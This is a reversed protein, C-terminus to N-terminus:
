EQARSSRLRKAILGLERINDVLIIARAVTLKDSLLDEFAEKLDRTTQAADVLAQASLNATNIEARLAIWKSPDSIPQSSVYDPRVTRNEKYNNISALDARIQQSLLKQALEQTVLEKYIAEKRAMLESRLVGKIKASLMLKPIASYAAGANASLAPITGIQNGIDTLQTFIRASTEQAKEPADSSAIAQLAQFYKSLLITHNRALAILRLYAELTAKSSDYKIKDHAPKQEDAALLSESSLGISADASSLLLSDMATAYEKGAEAFRKYEDLTAAGCSSLLLMLMPTAAILRWKGSYRVPLM